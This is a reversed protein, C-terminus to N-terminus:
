LIGLGVTPAGVTAQSLTFLSVCALHCKKLACSTTLDTVAVLLALRGVPWIVHLRTQFGALEHAFINQALSFHIRDGDDSVTTQM